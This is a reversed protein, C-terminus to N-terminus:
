RNREPHTEPFHSCHPGIDTSAAVALGGLHGELTKGLGALKQFLVKIRGEVFLQVTGQKAEHAVFEAHIHGVLRLLIDGGSESGASDRGPGGVFEDAKDIGTLKGTVGRIGAMLGHIGM